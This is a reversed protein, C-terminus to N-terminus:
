QQPALLKELDIKGGYLQKLLPEIDAEWMKGAEYMAVGMTYAESYMDLYDPHNRLVDRIGMRYKLQVEKASLGTLVKCVYSKMMREHDPAREPKRKFAAHAMRNDVKLPVHVRSLNYESLKFVISEMDLFYLRVEEGEPTDAQLALLAAQSRSLIYKKTPSGSKSKVLLASIEASISPRLLLPKIYHDAWARFRGHPKGIRSWLDKADICKFTPDEVYPLFNRVRMARKAAEESLGFDILQREPVNAHTLILSRGNRVPKRKTNSM